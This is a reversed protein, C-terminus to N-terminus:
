NTLRLRRPSAGYMQELLIVIAMAVATDFGPQVVLSFIDKGFAVGRVAAEKRKIEAVRRRKEDYVACCRQGYSGEIEYVSANNRERVHALVSKSSKVLNVNKEVSFRPNDAAEGDYIM